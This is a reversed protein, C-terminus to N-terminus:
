FADGLRWIIWRDITQCRARMIEPSGVIIALSKARSVAVNIRDPNLFLVAGYSTAVFLKVVIGLRVM